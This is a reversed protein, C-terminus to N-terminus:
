RKGVERESEFPGTSWVVKGNVLTLLSKITHIENQPVTLFPKDLVALDAVRGSELTGRRGEDFTLWAGNATYFRLVQSRTISYDARRQVAAGASTGGILYEIARWTNYEGVRTSDTGGVIRVGADLAGHVPPSAEAVAQGNSTAIDPAEYYPQMQVSYCVGLKAMRAFTEPTGTSIHAICWHLPRLDVSRAVREFVDLIQTAVDDSYAHIELPYKRRAALMAVEYLEDAEDKHIQFGPTLRTGDFAGFVLLEGVGMFRLMGDGLLPPMYATTAAFWEAEGGPKQASVRYSVRVSLKRQQWLAFLPDYIAGGSGGGAADVVATVGRGNLAKIYEELSEKREDDRSASIRAFLRSFSAINGTLKGTPRGQADKEIEIGAMSAGEKDFGLAQLGKHNVIAYDYMYEVFAPNDPLLKDLEEVTPARNEKFQAPSWSGAVAVWKGPGREAAAAKLQGLAERVNSADYWYTEFRYTQGARIFHLHSDNLGPIVTRGGLDVVSTESGALKRIDASSGVAVIEGDKIALAEVVRDSTDMTLIKGNVLIRTPWEVSVSRQVPMSRARNGPQLRDAAASELLPGLTSLIVLAAAATKAAEIGVHWM